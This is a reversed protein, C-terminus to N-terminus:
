ARRASLQVLCLARGQRPAGMSPAEEGHRDHPLGSGVARRPADYDDRAEISPGSPSVDPAEPTSELSVAGTVWLHMHRHAAGGLSQAELGVELGLSLLVSGIFSQSRKRDLAGVLDDGARSLAATAQLAFSLELGM